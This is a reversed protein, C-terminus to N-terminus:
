MGVRPLTTTTLTLFVTDECLRNTISCPQFRGLYIKMIQSGSGLRCLVKLSNSRRTIKTAGDQFDDDEPGDGLLSPSWHM